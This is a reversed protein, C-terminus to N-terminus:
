TLSNQINQKLIHRTFAGLKSDPEAVRNLVMEFIARVEIEAREEGVRKTFEEMYPKMSALKPNNKPL